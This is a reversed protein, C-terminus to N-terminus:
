GKAKLADQATQRAELLTQLEDTMQFTRGEGNKTSGPDLRVTGAAFDVNRWELKLVESDIRWGTIFAFRVVPAM